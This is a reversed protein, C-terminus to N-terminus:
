MNWIYFIIVDLNVNLPRPQSGVQHFKKLVERVHELHEKWTLSYIVINDQFVAAIPLGQLLQDM